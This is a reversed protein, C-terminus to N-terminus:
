NIHRIVESIILYTHIALMNAHYKTVSQAHEIVQTKSSIQKLYCGLYEVESVILREEEGSVKQDLFATIRNIYNASGVELSKGNKLTYKEDGEQFVKDAILILMKRCSHGVKNWDAPNTSTLNEFLSKAEDNLKDDLKSLKEDTEKRIEEMLYEVAGGYQLESIIDSLFILCKDTLSALLGDLIAHTVYYTKSDIDIELGKGLKCFPVFIHIKLGLEIQEFDESLRRLQDFVRAPVKRYSPLNEKAAYGNIESLIWVVDEKKNLNKAIVLCARLAAVTDSKGELIMRRTHVAIELSEKRPSIIDITM